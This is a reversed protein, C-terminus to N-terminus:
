LDLSLLSGHRLDRSVHTKELHSRGPEKLLGPSLTEPLKEMRTVPRLIYEVIELSLSRLIRSTLTTNRSHDVMVCLAWNDGLIRGVVVVMIILLAALM